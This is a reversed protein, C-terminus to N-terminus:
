PKPPQIPQLPLSPAATPPAVPPPAQPARGAVHWSVLTIAGGWIWYCIQGIQKKLDDPLFGITQPWTMIVASVPLGIAFTRQTPNMAQWRGVIYTLINKM